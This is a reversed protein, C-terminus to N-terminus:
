EENTRSSRKSFRGANKRVGRKAYEELNEGDPKYLVFTMYYSGNVSNQVITPFESLWYGEYVESFFKQPNGAEMIEKLMKASYRHENVKEQPKVLNRSGSWRHKNVNRQGALYASLDIVGCEDFELRRTNSRGYKWASELVERSVGGSVILHLHCRGLEGFAKIVIYKFEVGAKKYLRKLRAIYNSIDKEFRKENEPYWGDSYTLTVSTSKKDFNAHILWTLRERAHRENLLAQIESTEKYRGRRLGPKRYTPFVAAFIMEGAYILQEKYRYGM